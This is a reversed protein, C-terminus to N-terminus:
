AKNAPATLVIPNNSPDAVRYGTGSEEVPVNAQNLRTLITELQDSGSLHIVYKDLGLAGPPPPV